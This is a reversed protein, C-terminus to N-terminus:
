PKHLLELGDEAAAGGAAAHLVRAGEPEPAAAAPPAWLGRAGGTSDDSDVRGRQVELPAALAAAGGAQAGAAGEAAEEEVAAWWSALEGRAAAAACLCGCVAPVLYLLAPQGMGSAQVAATAAALGCAYAAVALPFYGCGRPSRACGCAAPAAAAARAAGGGAGVGACAGARGSYLDQRAALALALGPLVIDGLGLMAYGGRWDGAGRPLRLLIPMFEAPACFATDTPHSRCWCALDGGPPPGRAAAGAAGATAVDVMVSSGFIYPTLFVMFVDYVLFMSLLGCAARLSSVRASALFACCVLAGLADQLVWAGPAHRLAFFLAALGCGGASLGWTRASSSAARAQAASYTTACWTAM